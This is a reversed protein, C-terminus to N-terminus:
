SGTTVGDIRRPVRHPNGERLAEPLLREPLNQYCIPRLFRQVALAGVSSSRADSAAPFRGGHVMAHCVEVGTPWGNAVIRGVKAEILPILRAM